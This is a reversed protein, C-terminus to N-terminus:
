HMQHLRHIQCIQNLRFFHPSHSFAHVSVIGFVQVCQGRQSSDPPSCLQSSTHSRDCRGVKLIGVFALSGLISIYDLVEETKSSNLWSKRIVLIELFGYGQNM